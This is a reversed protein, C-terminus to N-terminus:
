WKRDRDIVNMRNPEFCLSIDILFYVFFSVYIRMTKNQKDQLFEDFKVFSSTNNYTNNYVNQIIQKTKTKTKKKNNESQRNAYIRSQTNREM